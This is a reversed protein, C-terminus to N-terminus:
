IAYIFHMGFNEVSPLPPLTLSQCVRSRNQLHMECGSFIYIEAGTFLDRTTKPLFRQAAVAAEM